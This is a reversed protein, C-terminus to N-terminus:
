CINESVTVIKFGNNIYYELIERLALLTHSKPHMLILDGNKPNKTARKIILNTDNDRWDITDKSWMITKYGLNFAAELTKNSFSGSPPAFLSMQYNCLTEIVKHNNYIENFNEEYSLKSHDKHFYGHNGLEHGYKLIYDLLEANDDAFCGGMFFTSKVNYENLLNVINIVIEKNEYVNFMLSVNKKDKNGSYYPKDNNVKYVPAIFTPIVTVSFFVGLILFIILNTIISKKYFKNM